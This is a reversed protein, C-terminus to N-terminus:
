GSESRMLKASERGELRNVVVQQWYLMDGKVAESYKDRPVREILFEYIAERIVQSVKMGKDQAYSKLLTGRYPEIILNLHHSKM